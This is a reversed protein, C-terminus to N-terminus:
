TLLRFINRRVDIILFRDWIYKSLIIHQRIAKFDVCQDTYKHNTKALYIYPAVRREM